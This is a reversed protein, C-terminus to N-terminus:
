PKEEPFLRTLFDARSGDYTATALHEIGGQNGWSYTFRAQGDREYLDVDSNNINRATAIRQQEAETFVVGPALKRDNADATLIPNFPSDAWTKLDRSRSVFVSYGRVNRVHFNYFWGDHYELDHPAAMHNRGHIYEEPLVDWHRLDKSKAFRATWSVCRPKSTEFMLVYEDGARVLSTNCINFQRDDIANWQEWNVLDRSAFINVQTRGAGKVATTGSAAVYVTGSEVFVTGFEHHKAFAAVREGTDADRIQMLTEPMARNTFHNRAWELRVWRGKWEFTHAEVLSVALTGTKVIEPRQPEAAPKCRLVYCVTGDAGNIISGSAAYLHTPKGDQMLVQPRQFTGKGYYSRVLSRDVQPLYHAPGYYGRRVDSDFALGDNSTWFLGGGHTHKGHNDTTVLHVRGAQEFAYGDEVRVENASLKAPQHVYPGELNDAVAVGMNAGKGKFYLLYKGNFMVFAPNVVQAGHTWHKPDPSPDLVKGDAGVKKWPGDLSDALALGIRQTTPHAGIGKTVGIPNGIYFLAFKGDVRAIVPNAPAFRDWTDTGTGRLAVDRLTFPGEPRDGVYHAIESDHRWAADFDRPMTASKVPWREVFLHIKGDEGTIPSCGWIHWGPEQVMAGTYALSACFPSDAVVTQGTEAAPTELPHFFALALLGLVAVNGNTSM